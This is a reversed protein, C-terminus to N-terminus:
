PFLSRFSWTGVLTEASALAGKMENYVVGVREFRGDQEGPRRYELHQGEQMLVERKLLPSFVADGYVVMLNYFDKEVMSSAPYVTKDPFTFANLFTHLSGKLLLVFPDKVPFRESGCLVSHELIHAVGTDDDPPTRFVFAFLNERDNNHLHFLELGTSIHTFHFATSEYESLEQVSLAEFGSYVKGPDIIDCEKKIRSM